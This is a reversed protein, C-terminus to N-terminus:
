IWKIIIKLKNLLAKLKNEIASYAEFEVAIQIGIRDTVEDADEHNYNIKPDVAIDSEAVAYWAMQNNSFGSFTTFKFTDTKGYYGVGVYGSYGKSGSHYRYGDTNFGNLGIYTTWKGNKSIGSGYTFGVRSTNWSGYELELETQEVTGFKGQFSLSGAFSSVGNTSTGVGRQIQISQINTAFNPYNSFYVGQDEPENLPVGNLTMNIRTQDIGRLRFYSYGQPHGGDSFSNVSPTTSLLIPLEQGTYVLQIEESTVMKATIPTQLDARIGVLEITEM